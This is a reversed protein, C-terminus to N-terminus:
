PFVGASRGLVYTTGVGTIISFITALIQWFRNSEQIELNRKQLENAAKRLALDTNADPIRPVYIQDGAELMLSDSQKPKPELWLRTGVKIIRTRQPEANHAFGGAQRIYYEVTRGREFEVFGPKNVQGFVFVNRPTRAVVIVDGDQLVVNDVESGREFAATFDCAVNARRLAMDMAYQMTDEVTLTTYQIARLAELSSMGRVDSATSSGFPSFGASAGATLLASPIDRRTIFSTPLHAENTLGGAAAIAAKLRLGATRPYLGPNRVEGVISISGQTQERQVERVLVSAGPLLEKDATGNMVDRWSVTVDDSAGAAVANRVVIASSDATETLGFAAKILMSLKDGKRWPILAPRHVAGAISLMGKQESEFPVYIEDGERVTPDASEDGLAQARIVDSVSSTGNRHLVTTARAAVSAVFQRKGGLAATMGDLTLEQRSASKSAAFESSVVGSQSTLQVATSVNMSAPLAILGGKAVNGTMRVYVTRARQLTVYAKNLPNRAQVLKQVEQKVQALTKGSVSIDGLRPLLITNEPSVVVSADVSAVGVIQVALVDGPGLYYLDPRVPHEIPFTSQAGSQLTSQQLTSPSLVQSQDGLASGPLEMERSARSQAAAVDPYVTQVVGAVVFAALACLVNSWLCQDLVSCFCFLLCSCRNNPYACSIM